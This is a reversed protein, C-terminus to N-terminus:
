PPWALTARNDWIQNFLTQTRIIRNSGDYTMKNIHWNPASTPSANPGIGYYIMNSSADYDYREEPVFNLATDFSTFWRQQKAMYIDQFNM